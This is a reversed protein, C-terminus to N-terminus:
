MVRHVWKSKSYSNNILYHPFLHCSEFASSIPLFHARPHHYLIMLLGFITWEKNDLILFPKIKVREGVFCYSVWKLSYNVLRFIQFSSCPSASGLNNEGIRILTKFAHPKLNWEQCIRPWHELGNGPVPLCRKGWPSPLCFCFCLGLPNKEKKKKQKTERKNKLM